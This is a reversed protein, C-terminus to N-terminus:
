KSKSSRHLRLHANSDAAFTDTKPDYSFKLPPDVIERPVVGPVESMELIAIGQGSRSYRCPGGIADLKGGASIVCTGDDRLELLMWSDSEGHTWRGVPGVTAVCGILQAIALMSGLTARLRKLM